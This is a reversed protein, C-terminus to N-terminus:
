MTQEVVIRKDLKWGDTLSFVWNQKELRDRVIYFPAQYYRTTVEVDAKYASDSFMVEEVKSEVVREDKSTGRLQERVALQGDQSVLALVAGDDGWQMAEHFDRIAITLLSMRSAETLGAKQISDLTPALICGSLTLGAISLLVLAVSKLQKYM